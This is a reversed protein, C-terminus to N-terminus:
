VRRVADPTIGSVLYEEVDRVGAPVTVAVLAARAGPAITGYERGFGLADAGVRTASELLATASVEPALRRLEALEDWMNLTPVSALSDTGIAVPLGAAYFHTIPPTGAGVWANSRPCTVLTAGALRLRELQEVTLQVGHVVVVGPQLYRLGALYTVPDTAPVRWTDNWAGFAELMARIPGRGTRLFEIEEPSEALHVTLPADRRTRAIETFLAPSVSYPAHAVVSFALPAHSTANGRLGAIEGAVRDVAAWADRVVRVPDVANFGLVEHFVVGGLGAEHLVRPTTLGNTIDGVLVTGSAIMSAAAARAARLEDGAGPASTRREQVLTRIWDDMS